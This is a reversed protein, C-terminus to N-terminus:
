AGSYILGGTQAYLEFVQNAQDRHVGRTIEIGRDQLYQYSEEFVPGEDFKLREADARRAGRVIRTVGSWLAAGLCMACPECSTVLEHRPLGDAGLTFSKLRAQAMMFAVMEAHLASNNLREVMNVGVSILRNSTAEFIGAGFPGGTRRRVNERAMDIVFSMKEEDTTYCHNWDVLSEVWAPHAIQIVPM